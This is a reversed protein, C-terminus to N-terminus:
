GLLKVIFVLVEIIKILAFNVFIQNGKKVLKQKVFIYGERNNAPSSTAPAILCMIIVPNNFLLFM